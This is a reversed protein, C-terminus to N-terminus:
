LRETWTPSIQSLTSIYLPPPPPHQNTTHNNAQKTTVVLRLCGHMRVGKRLERERMDVAADVLMYLCRFKDKEDEEPPSQPPTIAGTGGYLVSSTKSMDLPADEPWSSKSPSSIPSDPALSTASTSLMPPPPPSSSSSHGD